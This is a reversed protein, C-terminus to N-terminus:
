KNLLEGPSGREAEELEGQDDQVAAYENGVGPHFM